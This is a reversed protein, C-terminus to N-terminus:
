SEKETTEKNKGYDELIPDSNIVGDTNLPNTGFREDEYENNNKYMPKDTLVKLLGQLGLPPM